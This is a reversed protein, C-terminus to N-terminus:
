QKPILIYGRDEGSHSSIDKRYVITIRHKGKDIGTFEVLKYYSIDTGSSQAGRTHTKVQNANYSTNNTITEDLQSVMVYDYNSEAYSRVYLKFTEYGAIDIYMTAGTSNVNFNSYSEYVGDYLSSNPNSISTSKRWNNNLNLTYARSVNEVFIDGYESWYKSWGSHSKYANICGEPVYIRSTSYVNFTTESISPPTTSLCKISAVSNYGWFAYKGISTVSAPITITNLHRSGWFASEGRRRALANNHELVGEPSAETIIVISDVLQTKPSRITLDLQKFARRNNLYDLDIVSSDWRFDMRFTSDQYLINPMPEDGRAVSLSTILMFVVLVFIRHAGKISM